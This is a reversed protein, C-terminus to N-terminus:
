NRDYALDRLAPRSALQCGREGKDFGVKIYHQHIAESDHGILAQVVATPNVKAGPASYVRMYEKIDDDSFVDPKAAKNRFFWTIYAEERGAIV